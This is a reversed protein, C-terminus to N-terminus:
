NSNFAYVSASAGFPLVESIFCQYQGSHDEIALVSCWLSQQAVLMQKYASDLDLTRGVLNRADIVSLSKHLKGSLKAGDSLTLVVTREEDVCDLMTRALVAVGDVGPLDLKYSSSFSSNVLSETLDDIARVKDSQELGFRRSVVYLPGLEHKLQEHSLPGRLWGRDREEIANNWVVERVEQPMLPGNSRLIKRRTWKSSKMLQEKTLAADVYETEFLSTESATGTLKTGSILLDMLDDDQIGADKCMRDFLLVNKNKLLKARGPTLKAHIATEAPQLEDRVAEYYEFIQERRTALNQPGETLVAFIAKKADDTMTTSGDFPHDLQVARKLFEEPSRFVGVERTQQSDAGSDGRKAPLLRAPYPCSISSCQSQSLLGPQVDHLAAAPFLRITRFEPIIQPLLNGRPQRGAEAARLQSYMTKRKKSVDVHFSVNCDKAVGAVLNAVSACLGEPYEAESSMHFASSDEQLDAGWPRHSHTRDCVKRLAEFAPHNCYFTSWKDRPGGFMCHQFSVPFLAAESILRLMWTTNWMHSRKPNEISILARDHVALLIKSINRFVKNATEVKLRDTGSLGLLGQPYRNSRLPKSDPAGRCRKRQPIRRERARSATGCRPAAHVYFIHSPGEFLQLVLEVSEDNALDISVTPHCQAQKKKAHDM